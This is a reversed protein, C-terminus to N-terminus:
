TKLKSFNQKLRQKIRLIKTSINSTTLGLIEAIERQSNGELYLIIVARDMERLAKIFRHLQDVETNFVSPSNEEHLYLIHDSLPNNIENRRNEKRYFSISVNLAIRYMWTSLKYSPDFKEFSLWLQIIIEQILDKKNEEDKCYANAVKYIIGKNSEILSLFTQTDSMLPM